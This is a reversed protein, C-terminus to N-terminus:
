TTTGVQGSETVSFTLDICPFSLPGDVLCIVSKKALVNGVHLAISPLSVLRSIFSGSINTDEV